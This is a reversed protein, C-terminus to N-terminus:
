ELCPVTWKLKHYRCAAQEVELLAMLGVADLYFIVGGLEEEGGRGVVLQEVIEEQVHQVLKVGALTQVSELELSSGSNM